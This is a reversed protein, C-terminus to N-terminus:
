MLLNLGGLPFQLTALIAFVGVSGGNFMLAGGWAEVWWLWWVLRATVESQRVIAMGSRAGTCCFDPWPLLGPDSAHFTSGRCM